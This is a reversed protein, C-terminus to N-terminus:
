FRTDSATKNYWYTIEVWADPDTGRGTIRAKSYHGDADYLYFYDTTLDNVNTAWSADQVPSDVGDDINNSSGMNFKTVRTLGQTTNLHASQVLFGNSSYYIDVNM